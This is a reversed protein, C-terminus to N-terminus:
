SAGKRRAPPDGIESTAVAPGGARATPVGATLLVLVPVAPRHAARKM